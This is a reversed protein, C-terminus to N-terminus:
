VRGKEQKRSQIFSTVVVLLSALWVIGIWTWIGM